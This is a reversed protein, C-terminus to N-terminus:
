FSEADKPRIRSELCTVTQIEARTITYNVRIRHGVQFHDSIAQAASFVMQNAGVRVLKMASFDFFCGVLQYMAKYISEKASFVATLGQNYREFHAQIVMDEDTGIVQQKIQEAVDSCIEKEIDVGIGLVNPRTTGICVAIDATHSISAVVGIPWIPEQNAGILVNSQAKNLGLLKMVRQACLRGALYDSRRKAVANRLQPPFAIEFHDFLSDRYAVVHFRCQFGLLINEGIECTFMGHDSLFASRCDIM